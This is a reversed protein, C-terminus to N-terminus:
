GERQKEPLTLRYLVYSKPLGLRLTPPDETLSSMKLLGHIKDETGMKRHPWSFCLEIESQPNFTRLLFALLLVRRIM